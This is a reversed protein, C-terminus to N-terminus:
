SGEDAPKSESKTPRREPSHSDAPQGPHQQESDVPSLVQTEQVTASEKADQSAQVFKTM